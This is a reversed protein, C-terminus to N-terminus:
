GRWLRAISLATELDGSYSLSKVM